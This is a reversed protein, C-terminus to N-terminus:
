DGLFSIGICLSLFYTVLSITCISFILIGSQVFISRAAYNKGGLLLPTIEEKLLWSLIIGILLSLLFYKRNQIKIIM